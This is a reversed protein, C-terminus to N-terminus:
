KPHKTISLIVYLDKDICFYLRYDISIRIQWINESENYKKARLSPHRINKLLFNLQKDALAQINLPLNEYDKFGKATFIFQM